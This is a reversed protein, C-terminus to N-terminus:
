SAAAIRNAVRREAAQVIAARLEPPSTLDAGVSLRQERALLRLNDASDISELAGLLRERGGTRLLVVVNISFPDFPTAVPRTRPATPAPQVDAPSAPPTEVIQAPKAPAAEKSVEADGERQQRRLRLQAIERRLLQVIKDREDPTLSSHSRFLRRFYADQSAGSLARTRKTM